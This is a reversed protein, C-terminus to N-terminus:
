SLNHILSSFLEKPNKSEYPLNTDDSNLIELFPYNTVIHCTM